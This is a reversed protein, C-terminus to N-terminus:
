AGPNIYNLLGWLAWDSSIVGAGHEHFRINVTGRDGEEIVFAANKEIVAGNVINKAKEAIKNDFEFVAKYDHTESVGSFFFVVAIVSAVACMVAKKRRILAAFIMDLVIAIGVFSPLINRMCIYPNAIILFLSVPLVALMAACILTLGTKKNKEGYDKTHKLLLYTAAGIIVALPIVWWLGDKVTILLGRCFGRFTIAAPVDWFVTKLQTFVDTIFNFYWENWAPLELAIRKGIASNANAFVTTFALYIVANVVLPIATLLSKKSKGCNLLIVTFHLVSSLIFIQEYYCLSILQIICFAPFYGLKATDFYKQLLFVSLSTFFLGVVVRTSASMWYAGEYFFPMLSYFFTFMVGTKFHRRFVKLFLIASVAYLVCILAVGALMFDFMKGWFYVDSLGALPRASLLGQPIVVDNWVDPANPYKGYQIYDDLQPFYRFGCAVYRAMLSFFIYLATFIDYKNKSLIGKLQKM